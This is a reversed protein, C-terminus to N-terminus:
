LEILPKTLAERLQDDYRLRLKISAQLFQYRAVIEEEIFPVLEDKRARIMTEKDASVAAEIVSLAEDVEPSSIGDEGIEKKLGDFYAKASSRYDFTQEKAFEVFADFDEDSLHFDEVDAISEHRHVFDMCVYRDTVGSYVLSFVIRGYEKSSLEVDPTIGGGDKVVRGHATLFENALSDPTHGVTGDENRHSYDLAQVCRGSPTYYRATTVKLSGNYPLPRVSQVLGKGFTRQGMITGRDMDQIAGSVIESASASSGDVLVVIPMETDIPESQTRYEINEGLSRGKQTVVLSGKPVFLSVISIAERMLGGGNGRLDLFLRQMGQEKLSIVANRVDQSVNESFGTQLIYGDTDNLMGYYEVDPLHIRERVVPILVEEGTRVKKVLFNVTTGPKGKMKDSAETANLGHVSEGDIELIEDGCQIGSKQAPTGIYPENIIVNGDVDPKYIVAGIGGYSRNIMMQFDENEEEPVYVTYPDLEDLLADVGAREIRDIPLSDVYSRSLEKLVANHIEVWQGLKFGETQAFAAVCFLSLTAALIIKKNM